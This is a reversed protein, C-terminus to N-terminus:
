GGTTSSGFQPSTQPAPVDSKVSPPIDIATGKRIGLRSLSGVKMELAYQASGGSPTNNLDFPKMTATSVVKKDPGIYAIDLPIYTHNMWFKQPGANSYVFIMSQDDTIDKDKVFMLGEQQKSETDAIWTKLTHGDIGLDATKFTSLQYIRSPNYGPM